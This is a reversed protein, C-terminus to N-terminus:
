QLQYVTGHTELKKALVPSSFRPFELRVRETLVDYWNKRDLQVELAQLKNRTSIVFMQTKKWHCYKRKTEM